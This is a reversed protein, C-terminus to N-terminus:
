PVWRARYFRYPADGTPLGLSLSNTLLNTTLLPTWSTLNSSCLLSYRQGAQGDLWVSFASPSTFGVPRLRPAGGPPLVFLTISQPPLSNSFTNGSFALDSLRTITNASTLQWVQATGSPLFNTLTVTAPANASLQKNIV